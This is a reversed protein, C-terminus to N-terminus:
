RRWGGGGGDKDDDEDEDLLEDEGEGWGDSFAADALRRSAANPLDLEVGVPCHDSGMVTAAIWADLVLEHLAPSVTVYDIRWGINEKRADVRTEWFTFQKPLEGKIERFTDIFGEAQLRDFWAREVPLTGSLGQWRDPLALDLDKHAINYDGAIVVRKETRLAAVAELFRDHWAHKFALREDSSGGNPFYVSLVVLDNDIEVGAIRGERDYDAEEPTRAITFPFPRAPIGDRVLVATGSYGKRTESCTWHGVSFGPPTRMADTLHAEQLKTEQLCLVDVDVGNEALAWGLDDRSLVARLGNVNWSWIKM